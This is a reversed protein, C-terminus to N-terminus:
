VKRVNEGGSLQGIVTHFSYSHRITPKLLNCFNGYAAGGIGTDSLHPPLRNEFSDLLGILLIHHIFYLPVKLKKLHNNTYSNRCLDGSRLETTIKVWVM